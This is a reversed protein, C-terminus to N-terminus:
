VLQLEVEIGRRPLYAWMSATLTRIGCSCWRPLLLRKRRPPLFQVPLLAYKLVYRMAVIKLMCALSHFAVLSSRPYVAHANFFHLSPQVGVHCFQSLLQEVAAVAWLLYLSHADGFWVTSPPLQPM